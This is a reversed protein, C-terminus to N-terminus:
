AVSRQQQECGDMLRGQNSLPESRTLTTDVGRDAVLMSGSRLRSLLAAALRNDHAEGTTLALRVPLGSSDVVAHIKARSSAPKVWAEDFHGYARPTTDDRWQM